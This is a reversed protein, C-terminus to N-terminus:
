EWIANASSRAARRKEIRCAKGNEHVIVSFIQVHSMSKLMYWRMGDGVSVSQQLKVDIEVLVM